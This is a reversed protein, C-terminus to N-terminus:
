LLAFGHAIAIPVNAPVGRLRRDLDATWPGGPMSTAARRCPSHLVAAPLVRVAWFTAFRREPRRERAIQEDGIRIRQRVAVDRSSGGTLALPELPRMVERRDGYRGLVQLAAREVTDEEASECASM